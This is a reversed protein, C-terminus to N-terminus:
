MLPACYIMGYILFFAIVLYVILLLIALWNHDQVIEILFERLDNMRKTVIVFAIIELIMAMLGLACISFMILAATGTM